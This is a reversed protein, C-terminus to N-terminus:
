HNTPRSPCPHHAMRAKTAAFGGAGFPERHGCRECTMVPTFDDSTPQPRLAHGLGVLRAGPGSVGYETAWLLGFTPATFIGAVILGVGADGTGGTHILLATGWIMAALGAVTLAVWLGWRLRAAVVSLVQYEIRKGCTACSLPVPASYVDNTPRGLLIAQVRYLDFGLQPNGGAHHMLQVEVEATPIGRGMTVM